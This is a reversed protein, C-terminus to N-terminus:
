ITGTMLEPEQLSAFVWGRLGRIQELFTNLEHKLNVASKEM